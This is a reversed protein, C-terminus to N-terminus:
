KERAALMARFIAVVLDSETSASGERGDWFDEYVRVGAAIMAPTITPDDRNSDM